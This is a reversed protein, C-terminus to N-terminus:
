VIQQTESSHDGFFATSIMEVNNAGDSVAIVQDLLLNQAEALQKLLVSLIETSTM